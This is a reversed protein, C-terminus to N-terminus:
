KKGSSFSYTSKGKHKSEYMAADTMEFLQKVDRADRGNMIGVSVSIPPMGDDTDELYKSIQEIKATIQRHKMGGSHMLFVVFEDGGIRCICDRDRFVKKLVDVIKVLVKDGVEHGYRDNYTKFNDVDFLLMYTSELDINSLLIEYGTRNYAGTLEDHSAKFSLNELSSKNKEYMKNYASALYRFENSGVESVPLDAKIQGVANLIPNIALRTTLWIMFFVLLAQILIAVRVINIDRYLSDIEEAEVSKTLKEVEYLSEQMATRIRDKKSYYADGHVLESARRMKEDPSLAMDAESLEVSQLVEPYDTYGKAEIVLRMAYYEMDMLEVSNDMAQQLQELAESTRSDVDMRAIAAERRKSEFAEVYYRDLFREDGEITFRQVQETLYDSASMLEHAAGQLEAGQRFAATIGWFTSTLRLTAYVVTGSFIIIIIVLWLHVVRHSIGSKKMYDAGTSRSDEIHETNKEESM